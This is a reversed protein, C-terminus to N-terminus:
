PMREGAPPTLAQATEVARTRAGCLAPRGLLDWCPEGAEAEHRACPRGLVSAFAHRARAALRSTDRDVASTEARRSTTM